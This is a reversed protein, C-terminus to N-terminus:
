KRYAAAEHEFTVVVTHDPFYAPGIDEAVRDLAAQLALFTEPSVQTDAERYWEERAVQDYVLERADLRLRREETGWAWEPIELADQSYYDLLADLDLHYEGDLYLCNGYGRWLVKKAKDFLAQEWSSLDRM